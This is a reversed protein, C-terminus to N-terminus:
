VASRDDVEAGEIVDITMLAAPECGLAEALRRIAPIRPTTEGKEYKTVSTYHLHAREALEDITLPM